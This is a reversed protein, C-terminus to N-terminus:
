GHCIPPMSGSLISNAHVLANTTGREGFHPFYPYPSRSCLAERGPEKLLDLLSGCFLLNGWLLEDPIGHFSTQVARFPAFTKFKSLAVSPFATQFWCVYLRLDGGDPGVAGTLTSRTVASVFMKMEPSFKAPIGRRYKVQGFRTGDTERNRVFNQVFHCADQAAFLETPWLNLDVACDSL